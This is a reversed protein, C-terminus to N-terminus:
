RAHLFRLESPASPDLCNGTVPGCGWRQRAHGRVAAAQFVHLLRDYQPLRRKGGVIVPPALVLLGEPRLKTTAPLRSPGPIAARLWQCTPRLPLSLCATLLWPWGPTARTRLQKALKPQGSEAGHLAHAVARHLCVGSKGAPDLRYRYPSAWPLVRLSLSSPRAGATRPALAEHAIPEASSRM